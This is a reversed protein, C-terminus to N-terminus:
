DPQHRSIKILRTHPIYLVINGNKLKLISPKTTPLFNPRQQQKEENNFVSYQFDEIEDAHVIIKALQTKYDFYTYTPLTYSSIGGEEAAIDVVKSLDNAYSGLLTM